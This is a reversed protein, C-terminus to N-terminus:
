DASIPKQNVRDQLGRFEAAGVAGADYFLDARIKGSRV